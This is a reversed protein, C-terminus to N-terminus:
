QTLSLKLNIDFNTECLLAIGQGFVFCCGTKISPKMSCVAFLQITCTSFADCLFLKVSLNAEMPCETSYQKLLM